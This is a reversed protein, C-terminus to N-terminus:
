KIYNEVCLHPFQHKIVHSNWLDHWFLITDGSGFEARALGKFTDLLRLNGRWWFSGEMRSGSIKGNTYYQSWILKVWPLDAKSFFKDLNKMLLVENQLRLRILRLGREREKQRYVL